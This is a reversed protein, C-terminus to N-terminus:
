GSTSQNIAQSGTVLIGSQSHTTAKSSASLALPSVPRAKAVASFSVPPSSRTSPLRVSPHISPRSPSPSRCPSLSNPRVVVPSPSGVRNFNPSGVQSQNILARNSNSPRSISQNIMVRNSNSLGGVSQNIAVVQYSLPANPRSTPLAFPNIPLTTSTAPAAGSSGGPRGVLSAQYHRPIAAHSGPAAHDSAPVAPHTRPASILQIPPENASANQSM